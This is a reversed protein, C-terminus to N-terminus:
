IKCGKVPLPPMEIYTLFEETSRLVIILWGVVDSFTAFVLDCPKPMDAQTCFKVSVMYKSYYTIPSEYKM